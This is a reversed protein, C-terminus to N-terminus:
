KPNITATGDRAIATNASGSRALSVNQQGWPTVLQISFSVTNTDKALERALKSAGTSSCGSFLAALAAACVLFGWIVCLSKFVSPKKM